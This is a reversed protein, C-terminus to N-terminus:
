NQPHANGYDKIFESLLALTVLLVAVPALMFYFVQADNVHQFLMGIIRSGLTDSLVSFIVILGTMSNYMRRSLAFLTTSSLLPCIPAIFLGILLFIFGIAPVESSAHITRPDANLAQPLVSAVIVAAALLRM